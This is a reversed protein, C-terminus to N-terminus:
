STGELADIQAELETIVANVKDLRTKESDILERYRMAKEFDFGSGALARRYVELQERVEGKQIKWEEAVQYLHDLSQREEPTLSLMAKEKKDNMLDRLVKLEQELVEREAQTISLLNLEQQLRGRTAALEDVSMNAVQDIAVKVRLKHQEVKDRGGDAKKEQVEKPAAQEQRREQDKEKLVEWLRSLELRTKTFTQTDLTLEKAFYQFMKIEDRLEFRPQKALNDQTFSTEAFQMVDKLFEASIQQILEKRRPFVKDGAKSLREFLKNKFRIRMETKIVEKRFSTIRAALTNLLLLERQLTVYFEQKSGLSRSETPFCIEPTQALLEQMRDLDAEVAQIALDIQEMAFASQEDLLTKLHKAETSLEIYSNWLESRVHPAIFEKFFPLCERKADWYEKFRPTKHSIAARMFDLYARIKEEVSGLQKALDIGRKETTPAGDSPSSTSEHDM